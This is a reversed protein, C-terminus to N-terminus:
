DIIITFYIFNPEAVLSTIKYKNCLIFVSDPISLEVIEASSNRIEKNKISISGNFYMQRLVTTVTILDTEQHEKFKYQSNQVSCSGLVIIIFIFLSYKM